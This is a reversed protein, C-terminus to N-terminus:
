PAARSTFFPDLVALTENLITQKDQAWTHGASALTEISVPNKFLHSLADGLENEDLVQQAAGAALMDDAMIAFNDMRPGLLTACGLLAPEVPNHGGWTFSGALCCVPCLRYFLGLEGMTDALYLAVEPTIPEGKARHAFTLSKKEILSAIENGRQPHRPVIITLIDPFAKHLHAHVRLAIEEEGAHTSAMLWVPRGGIAARLQELEKEDCPLPEAAFKLNGIVRTDQLGLAAFRSREAGTQALGLSFVSLMEKTGGIMRWRRYSKESMRGNLLIAPVHREKLAALMNPWLESEVWLALDPKWHGLFRKVYPWRDVPVFQHFVGDPLRAAVLSASTTTGTTLLISWNPHRQRLAKILALVSMAEGVSAAHCWILKGHPRPISAHGLREQFRSADERGKAKRFRLYLTILPAFLNTLFRYFPM